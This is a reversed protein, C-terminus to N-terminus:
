SVFTTGKMEVMDVYTFGDAGTYLASSVTFRAQVTVCSTGGRAVYRPVHVEACTGRCVYRAICVIHMGRQM